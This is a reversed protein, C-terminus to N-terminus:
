LRETPRGRWNTTCLSQFQSSSEHASSIAFGNKSGILWGVLPNWKTAKQHRTSKTTANAQQPQTHTHSLVNINTLSLLIAAVQWRQEGWDAQRGAQPGSPLTTRPLHVLLSQSQQAALLTHTHKALLVLPPATVTRAAALLMACGTRLKAATTWWNVGSVLPSNEPYALSSCFSM